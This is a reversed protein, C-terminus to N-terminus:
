YFFVFSALTERKEREEREKERRERRERERERTAEEKQRKKKAAERKNKQTKRKKGEKKEGETSVRLFVSVPQISLLHRRAKENAEFAKSAEAETTTIISKTIVPICQDFVNFSFLLLSSIFSPFLYSICRGM